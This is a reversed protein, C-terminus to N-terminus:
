NNLVEWRQLQDAPMFFVLYCTAYLGPQKGLEHAIRPVNPRLDEFSSLQFVDKRQTIPRLENISTGDGIAVVYVRAGLNHLKERTESGTSYPIAQNGGVLLIIINPLLKRAGSILQSASSM